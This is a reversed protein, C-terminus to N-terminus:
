CLPETHLTGKLKNGGPLGGGGVWSALIRLTLFLNFCHLHRDALGWKGKPFVWNKYLPLPGSLFLFKETRPCLHCKQQFGCVLSQM